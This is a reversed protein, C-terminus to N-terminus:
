AMRIELLCDVMPLDFHGVDALLRRLYTVRVLEENPTAPPLWGAIRSEPYNRRCCFLSKKFNRLSL